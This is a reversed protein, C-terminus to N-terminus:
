ALHCSVTHNEGIPRLTPATQRCRETAYPCRPHFYCGSPAQSPHPVSGQITYL